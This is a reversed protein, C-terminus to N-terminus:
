EVHLRLGDYGLQMGVPLKPNIDAYLGMHHSVHIFYTQQADIRSALAVAQELTLHSHHERHHLASLVLVKLGRLKAFESEPIEKVDTLYALDGIRFGLVPMRGHRIAIPQIPIGQVSFTEEASISHLKVMPAGPYRNETAFIYAFRERLVGQVRLSAYVPMDSWNMFNFPRVDDLGIIHDNHEHTLLIADLDGVQQRLMQQRFDPGSDILLHTEDVRLLASCRLRKDRPDESVCV